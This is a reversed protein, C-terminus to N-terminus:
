RSAEQPVGTTIFQPFMEPLIEPHRHATLFRVFSDVDRASWGRVHERLGAANIWVGTKTEQQTNTM